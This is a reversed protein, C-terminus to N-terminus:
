PKFIKKNHCRTNKFSQHMRKTISRDSNSQKNVNKRSAKFTSVTDFLYLQCYHVVYISKTIALKKILYNAFSLLISSNINALKLVDLLNFIDLLYQQKSKSESHPRPM